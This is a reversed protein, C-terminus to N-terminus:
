KKELKTIWQIAYIRIIERQEQQNEFNNISIDSKRDCNMSCGYDDVESRKVQEYICTCHLRGHHTSTFQGFKHQFFNTDRKWRRVNALLCISNPSANQLLSAITTELINYLSEWYVCDTGLILLPSETFDTTTRSNSRTQNTNKYWSIANQIDEYDGWELKQVHINANHVNGFNRQRNRQLLPLASSLDTMLFEINNNTTTPHNTTPSPLFVHYALELTTFGIGAGLELIKLGKRNNISTV